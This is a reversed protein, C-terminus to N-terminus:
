LDFNLFSQIYTLTRKAGGDITNGNLLAERKRRNNTQFLFIELLKVGSIVLFM